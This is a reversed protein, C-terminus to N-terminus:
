KQLQGWLILAGGIAVAGYVINQLVLWPVMQVLDFGLFALLGWNFAGVGAAVLLFKTIMGKTKKNMMLEGVVM